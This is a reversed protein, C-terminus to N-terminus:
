GLLIEASKHDVSSQSLVNTFKHKKLVSLKHCMTVSAVSVSSPSRKLIRFGVDCGVDIVHFYTPSIFPFALMRVNLSRKFEKSSAMICGYKLVATKLICESTEM